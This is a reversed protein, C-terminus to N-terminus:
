QSNAIMYDVASKVDDDTLAPNGGKAPMMIGSSGTFGLIAHEYLMNTGQALRDAWVSADGLQPIGPLRTSHCSFCLGDYIKKGTAGTEEPEAAITEESVAATQVPESVQAQQGEVLVQGIPATIENVIHEREAIYAKDRVGFIRSFVIFIVIMVGLLGIITIYNRFFVRDKDEAM